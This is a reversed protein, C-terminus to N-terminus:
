TSHSTSTAQVTMPLQLRFVSGVGATSSVSLDGGLLRALRRALALGLGTGGYQRTATGDVQRFEEFVFQQAEASIGIGTDEISYVAHTDTVFLTARVAGARTFKFANSLLAGLIRQVRERDSRMNSVADPLRMELPVRDPASTAASAAAARLPEGPDFDTLHLQARGGSLATLELLDGILELLRESARTVDNLTQQQEETVPGAVGEQLLAIYGMVATLPTRLEHSVNALFEDKVRRAEVTDLYQKELETNAEILAANARRLEEILRSKEATAAMQDAVTRLLRGAESTLPGAEEFYFAIAGLVTSGAQLPLAVLSKFGLETAILHWDRLTPDGFLDPVAVVRRDQAAEGSPGQGLRVRMDGLFRQYRNPWNHAAAVRMLDASPELLYVCSLSAGVIPSVRDLAFQFVTEPRDASLFAHVIERVAMLERLNTEAADSPPRLREQPVSLTRAM